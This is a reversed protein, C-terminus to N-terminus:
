PTVKGLRSAAEIAEAPTTYTSTCQFSRGDTRLNEACAFWNGNPDRFLELRFCPKLGEPTNTPTTKMAGGGAGSPGRRIAGGGRRGARNLKLCEECVFGHKSAYLHEYCFHGNCSHEDEGPSGGCAYALGRDIRTTCGPHECTAIVGYGVEKGNIVGHSWGMM